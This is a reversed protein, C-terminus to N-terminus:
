LGEGNLIINVLEVVDLIDISHDNNIDASSSWNEDGDLILNILVIADLINTSYDNNIDGLQYEPASSEQCYGSDIQYTGGACYYDGYCIWTYWSGWQSCEWDCNDNADCETGINYNSCNGVEIDEVWDCSDDGSCELENMESCEPMEIEQCYSNDEIVYTGGYCYPMQYYNNGNNWGDCGNAYCASSSNLDYCDGLEVDQIWDCNNDSSCEIEDMESCELIEIEQCYSNNIQYTGGTCYPGSSDYWGPNSDVYCQGPYDYCQSVTLSGCSAYSIDEIWECNIGNSCEFYNMESCQSYIFGFLCLSIIKYKLLKVEM